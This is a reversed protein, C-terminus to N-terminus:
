RSVKCLASLCAVKVLQLWSLSFWECLAHLNYLLLLHRAILLPLSRVLLWAIRTAKLLQSLSPLLNEGSAELLIQGLCCRSKLIRVELVSLFSIHENLGNMQYNTVAAM